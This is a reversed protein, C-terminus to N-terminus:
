STPITDPDHEPGPDPDPDPDPGPCCLVTRCWILAGGRGRAIMRVTSERTETKRKTRRSETDEIETEATERARGDGEGVMSWRDDIM